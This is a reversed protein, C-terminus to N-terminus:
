RNGTIGSSRGLEAHAQDPFEDGGYGESFIQGDVKLPFALATPDADTSFFGPQGSLCRRHNGSCVTGSHQLSQRVLAPNNGGHALEQAQM